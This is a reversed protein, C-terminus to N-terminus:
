KKNGQNRIGLIRGATSIHVLEVEPWFPAITQRSKILRGSNLEFWFQNEAKKGNAFNVEEVVWKTQFTHDLLELQQINIDVIEYRTMVGTEYGFSWDSLSQWTQGVQIKQMDQVLPDQSLAKLFILDNQFGTSKVLRGNELVLMAEDASLWKQQGNEIFGLGLVANPLNGVKAYLADSDRSALEVRSLTAGDGPAFALKLTQSYSRFTSSCGALNTLAALAIVIVFKRM